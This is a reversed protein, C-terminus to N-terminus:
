FVEHFAQKGDFISSCRKLLDPIELKQPCVTVCKNCGICKNARNAEDLFGYRFTPTRHNDYRKIENLLGFIHSISIKQPCIDCYKCGTCNVATIDLYAKQIKDFVVLQENTLKNIQAFNAYEINQSVQEFNSMGSLVLGVDENNWIWDLMYQPPNYSSAKYLEALESWLKNIEEPISVTLQGGRLGEMIVIGLGKARAYRIGEFGVPVDKDVINYQLLCLDWSHLDV